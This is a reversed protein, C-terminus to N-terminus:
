ENNNLRDMRKSLDNQLDELEEQQEKSMKEGLQQLETIRDNLAKIEQELKDGNGSENNVSTTSQSPQGNQPVFIGSDSQVYGNPNNNTNIISNNNNNNIVINSPATYDVMDNLTVGDGFAITGTKSENIDFFTASTSAVSDYVVKANSLLSEVTAKQTEDFNEASMKQDLSGKTNNYVTDMDTVKDNIDTIVFGGTIANRKMMTGFDSIVNGKDDVYDNMLLKEFKNADSKFKRVYGDSSGLLESLKQYAMQSSVQGTVFDSKLSAVAKSITDDTTNSAIDDFTSVLSGHKSKISDAIAKNRSANETAEVESSVKSMKGKLYKDRNLAVDNEANKAEITKLADKYASLRRSTAKNAESESLLNGNKDRTIRSFDTIGFQEQLKKRQDATFKDLSDISDIANVASLRNDSGVKYDRKIRGQLSDILGPDKTIGSESYAKSIAEMTKGVGGKTTLGTGIAKAGAGFKRLGRGFASDRTPGAKGIQPGWKIGKKWGYSLTGGAAAAAWGAPSSLLAATAGLKVGATRIKDWAKQAMEGVGQMEGLRGRIGGRYKFNTGFIKNLIDPLLKILQLLGIILFTRIIGLKLFNKIPHNDDIVTNNLNNNNFFDPIISLGFVMFAVLAIKVFVLVFTSFVEKAWKQLVDDGMIVYACLIIPTILQLLALKLGRLAIDICLVVMEYVMFFGVAPSLIPHYNLDWKGDTKSTIADDLDDIYYIDETITKNYYESISESSVTENPQCFSYFAYAALIQGPRNSDDSVDMGLILKEVVHDNVIQEQWIYMRNFGMPVLVILFVATVCRFFTQKAGKKKDGLLDPNVIASILKIGLAFLMCASIILYLNQSINRITGASIYKSSALDEFIGYLDSILPYLAQSLNFTLARWIKKM